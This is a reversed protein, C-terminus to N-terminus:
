CLPFFFFFAFSLCAYVMSAWVTLSQKATLSFRHPRPLCSLRTHTLSSPPPSLRRGCPQQTLAANAEVVSVTQTQTFLSLRPPSKPPASDPKPSERPRSSLFCSFFFVARLAHKAAESSFVYTSFVSNNSRNLLLLSARASIKIKKLFPGIHSTLTTCRFLNCQVFM